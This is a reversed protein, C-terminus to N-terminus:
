NKTQNPDIKSKEIQSVSPFVIVQFQGQINFRKEEVRPTEIVESAPVSENRKRLSERDSDRLGRNMEKIESLTHKEAKVAHTQLKVLREILGAINSCENRLEQFSQTFMSM